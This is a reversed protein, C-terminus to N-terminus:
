CGSTPDATPPVPTCEKWATRHFLTLTKARLDALASSWSFTVSDKFDLKKAAIGGTMTGTNKFTVTSQPAYLSAGLVGSNVFDINSAGNAMGYVYIQLNEAVQSPNSFSSNQGMTLQGSGVPCGSGQREPSDIFIRTKTGAPIWVQGGNGLALNCFNYTGGGLAISGNVTLTRTAATYSVSNSADFPALKPSALGNSIRVNDNVTGSNGVDVPALVFPGQTPTRRVVQGSTSNSGFTPVPASPGLDIEGASSNNGLTIPGNSGLTGQINAVNKINIGDLGVLGPVAFIPVGQFAAVRAQVRRDVGGATGIATVCRQVITVQGNQTTQVPLGACHDTLNLVPSVRYTYATGNGLDASFAPCSGAVPLVALNTLCMNNTPALKNMRFSAAQVGADAAALARKSDRDHSSTNSLRVAGTSVTAVMILLLGMVAIVIYMAMGSEERMHM